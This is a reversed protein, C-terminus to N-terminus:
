LGAGTARRRDARDRNASRKQFGSKQASVNYTGVPMEPIPYRGARRYDWRLYIGTSVNKAQIKAGVVVAGTTDMATGSLVATTVQAQLNSVALASFLLVVLAWCVIKVQGLSFKFKFM